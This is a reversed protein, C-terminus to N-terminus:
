PEHGRLLAVVRDDGVQRVDCAEGLGLGVEPAALVALFNQLSPIGSDPKFEKVWVM